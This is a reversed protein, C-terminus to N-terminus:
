RETVIQPRTSEVVALLEKQEKNPIQLKDLSAKIDGIVADFEPNSIRMGAHAARMEKGDYQPPGGTALALFQAIHKKLATVNAETPNWTTAPGRKLLGGRDIGSRQWNVRPDEMVRPTFEDVIAKIGAEGGLRDYLSMKGAAQAAKPGGANSNGAAEAKKVDTEGAGEGSGALQEERAMRQTARQDADRSGSTFFEDKQKVAKGGCGVLIVLTGCLVAEGAAITIKNRLKMTEKRQKDNTAENM